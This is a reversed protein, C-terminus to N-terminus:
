APRSYYQIVWGTPLRVATVSGGMEGKSRLTWTCEDESEEQLSPEGTPTRDSTPVGDATVVQGGLFADLAEQATSWGRVDDGFALAVSETDVDGEDGADIM